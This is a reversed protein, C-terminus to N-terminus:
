RPRRFGKGFREPVDVFNERDWPRSWDAIDLVADLLHATLGWIFLEGVHFAPGHLGSRYEVSGRRAPEVLDRVRISHVAAVEGPDAAYVEHPSRWWGVVCSVDFQSAAVHATPLVGLVEVTGPDVAAEESAERLATDVPGDDEPEARGGPFAMQGAHHRLQASKEIFLLSPGEDDEVSLLALVSAAAAGRPPRAAFYDATVPQKLTQALHRLEAPVAPPM